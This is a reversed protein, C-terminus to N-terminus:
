GPTGNAALWPMRGESRLREVRQEYTESKPGARSHPTNARERKEWTRVCAKWDKMSQSGVKWGKAAYFDVFVEPDIGKGREACYAAVEEVTPPTFKKAAPSSPGEREELALSPSLTLSHSPLLTLAITCPENSGKGPEAPLKGPEAPLKGPEATVKEPMAPLVAPEKPHPKQHIAFTVIQIYRGGEASYIEIFGSEELQALLGVIDCTDFRLVWGKIKMPRYELRGNRDAWCWLGAYLIRALPPLQALEDNEFFGPKITRARPM